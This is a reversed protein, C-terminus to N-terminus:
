LSIRKGESLGELQPSLIVQDGPELGSDIVVERDNEFGTVVPRVQARGDDVVWLADGDEFPFVLTKRVAIVNERRDTVFRVDLRVGPFFLTQDDTVPEISVKVRQEELGLASVTEVATPAVRTVSGAFIHEEGQRNQILEVGMGVSVSLVDETLIYVEVEYQDGTFITMMPIVPSAPEGAKVTVNAVTGDLPARISGKEVQYEILDMQARIADIRGQYFQRTGGAPTRSEYLLKLAEQQLELNIRSTELMDSADEYDKASVAGAQYLTELRDFNTAATQLSQEALTIQLEQSKVSAEYPQSTTGAEEGQVSRLQAQLQRLQYDLESVDLTALLDGHSVSQGEQVFVERIEGGYLSYVAQETEPVVRGEETFFRSIDRLQVEETDAELPRFQNFLFFGVAAVGILIGIVIKWKTKM